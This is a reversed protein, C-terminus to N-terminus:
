QPLQIDLAGEDRGDPGSTRPAPQVAAPFPPNAYTGTRDFPAGADFHLQIEQLAPPDAPAYTEVLECDIAMSLSGVHQVGDSTVDTRNNVHSIQQLLQWLAYDTFIAQEIADGLLEIADQADAATDARARARIELTVTTTFQPASKQFGEKRDGSARILLEPINGEQTNWDGPSKIGVATGGSTLSAAELAALAAQRVQRQALITPM